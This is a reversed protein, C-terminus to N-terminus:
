SGAAPPAASVRARQASRRLLLLGIGVILVIPGLVPVGVVLIWVVVSVLAQGAAVTQAAARDIETGLDWGSSAATVAAIPTRWTVVLTALAARGELDQQQAVLREIEERVQQLRLQVALVDEISGAREMISQLAAESARLNAIRARLDVVQSTVEQAQTAEGLVRSGLARLGDIAQQWRDVPVRYSIIAVPSGDNDDEESASVYGGLSAVLARADRLKAAVDAVELELSGTRVILADDAARDFVGAAAMSEASADAPAMIGSGAELRAATRFEDEAPARVGSGVCAGLVFVGLVLLTALLARRPDTRHREM